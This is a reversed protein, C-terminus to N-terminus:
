DGPATAEIETKTRESVNAGSLSIITSLFFGIHQYSLAVSIINCIEECSATNMIEDAMIEIKDSKKKKWFWRIKPKKEIQPRKIGNGIGVILVAAIIALIRGYKNANALIYPVLDNSDEHFSKPLKSVYRSVEMLTALTPKAVKYVKNGVKIELPKQLIAEATRDELGM